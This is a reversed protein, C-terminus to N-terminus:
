FQGIAESIAQYSIKTMCLYHHYLCWIIKKQFLFHLHFVSIIYFSFIPLNEPICLLFLPLSDMKMLLLSLFFFCFLCVLNQLIIFPWFFASITITLLLQSSASTWIYTLYLVLSINLVPELYLCFHSPSWLALRRSSWCIGAEQILLSVPSLASLLIM